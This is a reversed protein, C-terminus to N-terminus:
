LNLHYFKSEYNLSLIKKYEDMAEFANKHSKLLFEMLPESVSGKLKVGRGSNDGLLSCAISKCLSIDFSSEAKKNLFLKDPYWNKYKASITNIKNGILTTHYFSIVNIGHNIPNVLFSEVNLGLHVYGLNEMYASFELLRNLLWRVHEEPFNVGIISFMPNVTIIKNEEISLPLYNKFNSTANNILNFYIEKNKNQQDLDIDFYIINEKITIFGSDDQFKFGKEFLEKLQQLKIFAEHSNIDKCLDPHILKIVKKYEVDFNSVDIIDKINKANLIKNIM